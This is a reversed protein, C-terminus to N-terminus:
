KGEKTRKGDLGRAINWPVVHLRLDGSYCGAPDDDIKM